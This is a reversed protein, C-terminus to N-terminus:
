TQYNVFPCVGFIFNFTRQKGSVKSHHCHKVLFTTIIWLEPLSVFLTKLIQASKGTKSCLPCPILVLDKPELFMLHNLLMLIWIVYIIRLVTHTRFVSQRCSPYEGTLTELIRGPMWAPYRNAQEAPTGAALYGRGVINGVSSCQAPLEYMAAIWVEPHLVSFLAAM